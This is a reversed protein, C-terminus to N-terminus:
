LSNYFILEDRKYSGRLVCNALIYIIILYKHSHVKVATTFVPSEEQVSYQWWHNWM